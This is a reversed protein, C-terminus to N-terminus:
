ENTLEIDEDEILDSDRDDENEFLGQNQDNDKDIILDSDKDNSSDSDQEVINLDSKNNLLRSDIFEIEISDPVLEIWTQGPNLKIREGQNNYFKTSGDSDKEWFGEIVLGDTFVFSSGRNDLEISLRGVDDIQRTRAYQVVINNASIQKNNDLLHPTEKSGSYRYYQNEQNNYKYTVMTGGWYPIKIIDALQDQPKIFSVQRFSFKQQYEQGILSDLYDEIRTKGTYLNHPARRNSSRWYYRSRYIQDLHELDGEALMAFGEPSAGAHLLLGNYEKAIDIMYPRASRIPGIKEPINDWYLAIFRTIGGEVLVEYVISAEELGSQPRAAPSNEIIVIMAKRLLQEDVAQGTFPSYYFNDVESNVLLADDRKQTDSLSNDSTDNYFAPLENEVVQEQESDQNNLNDDTIETSIEENITQGDKNKSSQDTNCGALLVMIIILSVAMFYIKKM